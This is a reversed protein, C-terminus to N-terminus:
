FASRSGPWAIGNCGECGEEEVDFLFECAWPCYHGPNCGAECDDRGCDCSGDGYRREDDDM